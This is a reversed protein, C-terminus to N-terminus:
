QWISCWFHVWCTSFGDQLATLPVTSHVLLCEIIYEQYYKYWKEYYRFQMSTYSVHMMEEIHWMCYQKFKVVNDTFWIRCGKIYYSILMKMFNFFTAAATHTRTITHLTNIFGIFVLCYITGLFSLSLIVSNSLLWSTVIFWSPTSSVINLSHSM